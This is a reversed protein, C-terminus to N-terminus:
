GQVYKQLWFYSLALVFLNCVLFRNFSTRSKTWVRWQGTTKIALWAGIVHWNDWSMIFPYAAAECFGVFANLWYDNVRKGGRFGCFVVLFRKRFPAKRLARDKPEEPSTATEHDIHEADRIAWARLVCSVLRIIFVVFVCYALYCGSCIELELDSPTPLYPRCNPSTGAAPQAIGFVVFMGLLCSVVLLLRCVKM